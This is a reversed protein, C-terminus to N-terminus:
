VQLLALTLQSETLYYLQRQDRYRHVSWASTQQHRGWLSEDAGYLQYFARTIAVMKAREWYGFDIRYHFKPYGTYRADLKSIKM